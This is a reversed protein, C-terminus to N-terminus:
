RVVIEPRDERVDCWEAPAVQAWELILREIEEGYQRVIDDEDYKDIASRLARAVVPAVYWATLHQRRQGGQIGRMPTGIFVYLPADRGNHIAAWQLTLFLRERSVGRDALATILDGVNTPFEYPFLEPLLVAAAVGQP